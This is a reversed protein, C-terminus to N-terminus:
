FSTISAVELRISGSYNVCAHIADSFEDLLAQGEPDYDNSARLSLLGSSWSCELDTHWPRHTFEELIDAVAATGEADTLGACTLAIRYM